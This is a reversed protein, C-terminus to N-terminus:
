NKKFYVSFPHLYISKRNLSSETGMFVHIGRFTESFFDTAECIYHSCRQPIFSILYKQQGAFTFQHSELLAIYERACVHISNFTVVNKPDRLVAESFYMCDKRDNKKQNQRLVFSEDFGYKNLIEVYEKPLRANKGSRKKYLKDRAKRWRNDLQTDNLKGTSDLLKKDSDRYTQDDCLFIFSICKGKKRAYEAARTGLELTYFSFEGWVKFDEFLEKTKHNVRLPFHGALIAINEHKCSDIENTLCKVLNKEDLIKKM